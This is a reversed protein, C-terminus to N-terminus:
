TICVYGLLCVVLRGMVGVPVRLCMCMVSTHVFVFYYYILMSLYPLM